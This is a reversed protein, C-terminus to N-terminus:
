VGVCSLHDYELNQTSITLHNLTPHVDLIALFADFYESSDRLSGKEKIIVLGSVANLKIRYGEEM